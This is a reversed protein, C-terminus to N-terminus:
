SLVERMAGMLATISYKAGDPTRTPLDQLMAIAARRLDRQQRRHHQALRYLQEDNNIWLSVNWQAWSPYGNYSKM